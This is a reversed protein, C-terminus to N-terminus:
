GADSSFGQGWEGALELPVTALIEMGDEPVGQQARKCEFNKWEIGNLRSLLEDQNM